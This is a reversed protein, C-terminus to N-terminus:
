SLWLWRSHMLSAAWPIRHGARCPWLTGSRPKPGMHSDQTGMDKSRDQHLDRNNRTHTLEVMHSLDWRAWRIWLVPHSCFLSCRMLRFSKHGRALIFMFGLMCTEIGCLFVTVIFFYHYLNQLGRTLWKVKRLVKIKDCTLHFYWWNTVNDQLSNVVLHPVVRSGLSLDPTSCHIYVSCHLFDPCLGQMQSLITSSYETMIKM